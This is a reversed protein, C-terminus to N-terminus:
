GQAHKQRSPRATLKVIGAWVAIIIAIHAIRAYGQLIIRYAGRCVTRPKRIGFSAAVHCRIPDFNEIGGQTVALLGGAYRKVASIMM